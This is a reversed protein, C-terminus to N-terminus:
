KWFNQQCSSHNSGAPLVVSCLWKSVRRGGTTPHPALILPPPYYFDQPQFLSLKLLVSFLYYTCFLHQMIHNNVMCQGILVWGDKLLPTGRGGGALCSISIAWCRTMPHASDRQSTKPWSEQKKGRRTCGWGPQQCPQILLQFSRSETYASSQLVYLM